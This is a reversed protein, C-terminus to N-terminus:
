STKEENKEGRRRREITSRRRRMRSWVLAHRVTCERWEHFLEAFASVRFCLATSWWDESPTAYKIQDRMM